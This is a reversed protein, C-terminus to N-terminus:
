GPLVRGSRALMEEIEARFSPSQQMQTTIQDGSMPAVRSTADIELKDGYRKPKEKGAQWKEIDVLVRATNADIEGRELKVAIEDIRDSRSDARAERARAYDEGFTDPNDRLWNTLAKWGPMGPTESIKTLNSGAAILECIENAIEANYGSPRGVKSKTENM